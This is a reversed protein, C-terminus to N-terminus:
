QVECNPCYRALFLKAFSELRVPCSFGVGVFRPYHMWALFLPTSSAQPLCARSSLIQSQASGPRLM